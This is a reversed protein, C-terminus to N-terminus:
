TETRDGGPAAHNANGRYKRYAAPLAGNSRKLTVEQPRIADFRPDTAVLVEAIARGRWLRAKIAPETTTLCEAADAMPVGAGALILVAAEKDPLSELLRHVTEQREESLLRDLTADDHGQGTTDATITLRDGPQGLGRPFERDHRVQRVYDLCVRACLLSLFRVAKGEEQYKGDRVAQLFKCFTDHVLDAATDAEHVYSWAIGFLRRRYREYILSAEGETV